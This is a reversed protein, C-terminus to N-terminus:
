PVTVPVATGFPYTTSGYTVGSASVQMTFSDSTANYPIKVTFTQSLIATQDTYTNASGAFGALGYVEPTSSAPKDAAPCGDGPAAADSVTATANNPPTTFGGTRTVSLALVYLGTISASASGEPVLTFTAPSTPEEQTVGAITTCDGYWISYPTPTGSSNAYPFLSFSTGNSGSANVVATGNPQLSTGNSVSIPMGTAAPATGPSVSVTGLEDYHFTVFTPLGATAVTATQSPSLNEQYDIFSPGGPPSALQVTYTGVPEELYVCGYQDPNYTTESGGSPTIEVQVNTLSATDHPAQPAQAGYIRVSLYGDGPVITGYPPNVIATEGLALGHGWKVTMTARIVQPPNGSSCLSPQSGTTAWELHSWVSFAVGGITIPTSTLLVDRSINSELTSLPDNSITEMYQEALETASVKERNVAAQQVVNDVLYSSAVLVTLLVAMSIMVEVLGFGGEDDM